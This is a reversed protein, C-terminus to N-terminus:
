DEFIESNLESLESDDEHSTQMTDTAQENISSEKQSLGAGVHMRSKVATLSPDYEAHTDAEIPTEDSRSRSAHTLDDTEEFGELKRDPIQVEIRWVAASSTKMGDHDPGEVSPRADDSTKSATLAAEDGTAGSDEISMSARIEKSSELADRDNKDEAGINRMPKVVLLKEKVLTKTKRKDFRNLLPELPCVVAAWEVTGEVTGGRCRGCEKGHRIFLQHLGYKLHNPVRVEGHLYTDDRSAKPPVWKLWKCFRWVHTDVAFSPQQLCFLILCSATKVGIGPYKTFELMAEDPTMGRIHDMSLIGSEIKRTQHEKQGDTLERTGSMDSLKGTRKEELYAVRREQNDEYVKDLINKIDKGKTPGLGARKVADAIEHEGSLRVKNWDISGAGISDTDWQGYRAIVDQIALNANRMATHGSILTRIMADVLDPVEGCGAVSTSPPPIKAPSNFEGHMESLIKHVQECDEASPASWDPFPTEGPMLGYPNDKTKRAVRKKKKKGGGADKKSAEELNSVITSDNRRIEDLAVVSTHRADAPRVSTDSSQKTTGNEGSQCPRPRLKRTSSVSIGRTQKEPVSHVVIGGDNAAGVSIGQATDDPTRTKDPSDPFGGDVRGKDGIDTSADAASPPVLEPQVSHIKGLGHPLEGTTHPDCEPAAPTLKLRKFSEVHREDEQTALEEKALRKSSRTIRANYNLAKSTVEEAEGEAKAGGKDAPLTSRSSRKAQPTAKRAQADEASSSQIARRAAARTQM